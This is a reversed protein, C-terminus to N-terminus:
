EGFLTNLQEKESLVSQDTVEQLKNDKLSKSREVFVKAQKIIYAVRSANQATVCVKIGRYRGTQVLKQCWIKERIFVPIVLNAITESLKDVSISIFKDTPM